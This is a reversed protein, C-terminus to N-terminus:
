NITKMITSFITSTCASSVCSDAMRHDLPGGKEGDRVPRRNRHVDLLVDDDDSAYM